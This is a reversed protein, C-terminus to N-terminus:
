GATIYSRVHEDFARLQDIPDKIPWLLIQQAGVDAYERLLGVCHEPTGIPLQASLADPERGLVPALVDHVLRDAEEQDSTV